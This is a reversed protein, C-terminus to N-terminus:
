RQLVTGTGVPNTTSSVGSTGKFASFGGMSSFQSQFMQGYASWNQASGAANAARQSSAGVAQSGLMQGGQFGFSAQTQTTASGIAGFEGSSQGAGMTEARQMVQARRVREERIRQRRSQADSAMQMAEQRRQGERTERRARSAARGQQDASILTGVLMAGAGGFSM